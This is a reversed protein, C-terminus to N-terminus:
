LSGTQQALLAEAEEESLQDIQDLFDVGGNIASDDNDASTESEFGLVDVLLFSTLEDITPHDFVATIPFDRRLENRIRHKLEVALLSDLGIKFLGQDKTPTESEDFGMLVVIEGQLWTSLLEHRAGPGLEGLQDLLGPGEPRDPLSPLLNRTLPSRLMGGYVQQIRQWELDVMALQPLKGALLPGLDEMVQAVALTRIGLREFDKNIRLGEESVGFGADAVPGLNIALAKCGPHSALDWALTDLYANAAAYVAQGFSSMLAAVSSFLLFFDVEDKDLLRELIRGGEVKPSLVHDLASLQIQELPGIVGQGDADSWVAAAHVVGRVPPRGDQARQALFERVRAEDGVDVSAYQVCVGAAELARIRGIADALRPSSGVVQDWTERAPLESRGLLTLYRAGHDALWRGVEYGLGKLGGTILYDGDPRIELSQSQSQPEPEPKPARLVRAVYRESQRFGVQDEEDGALLSTALREAVEAGREDPDLDVLGGWLDPREFACTRGLGWLTAQLPELGRAHTAVAQAGRTVVWVRPAPDLREAALRQLLLIAGALGAYPDGSAASATRSPPTLRSELGGLYVIDQCGPGGESPRVHREVLLRLRQDLAERTTLGGHTADDVLRECVAGVGLGAFTDALDAGLGDANGLVLWPSKRSSPQSVTAAESKEWVIEYLVGSEQEHGDERTLDPGAEATSVLTEGTSTPMGIELRSIPVAGELWFRRRKWPYTPLAVRRRPEDRDFGAWDIEVGAGHLHALSELLQDWDKKAPRLTPLWIAADPNPCRRGLGLLVPSPGLEIFANCRLAHLSAIGDMFRVPSRVHQRWYSPQVIEEPAVERGTLNSILHITPASLAVTGVLREFADLMPEVQPSHFAHSVELWRHRHGTAELAEVVAQLVQRDGSLVVSEPGNIAAISVQDLHHEIARSAIEEPAFVNVMAGDGELAQMLRGREAIIRLADELSFVGAVCAAVYEGVSHGLLATPKLGWSQLLEALGFEVAFLAPQALATEGISSADEASYLVSLLSQGLLPRLIEDCRELTRRFTPQTAYLQRGMGVRQAGQGTFLFAMRPPQELADVERHWTRPAREGAAFRRLSEILAERSSAAAAFRHEFHTRGDSASFCVDGLDLQDHQELHEAAREAMRPLVEARPASLLFLHQPRQRERTPRAPEPAEELVVHANTGSLGFSSVGALRRSSTPQWPELSTPVHFPAADLGLHPNPQEYHLHPPLQRHQMALVVKILGAIGAASEAHGFNTKVSGLALPNAAPRGAGMVEALSQVEIPDGLPTGTGHAEVYSVEDPQVAGDELATRIVAVQAPGYPVTLGSSHGDHNIASGRIMALVRDGDAVADRLRKLVVMGCGEARSYGDARADFTKCRGDPSLAQAASLFISSDPSLMLNVGGAVAMECEGRRLSQAALHVTVLSSSCATNLALSPGQFGLVYSLRGAAVSTTMGTGTYANISTADNTRMQVRAYDELTIGVYVGVRRNAWQAPVQGAHEMAEWTVELLLRQQPDINEAERPTIDFFTPDFQDIDELFGGRRTCMKGVAQPDSDFFGDMNWRDAPVDGTADVGNALLQWFSATDHVGGPFRCGVGIIAIPERQRRETADLQARMELCLLQLRKPSLQALERVFAETNSM